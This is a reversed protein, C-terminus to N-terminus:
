EISKVGDDWSLIVSLINLIKIVLFIEVQKNTYKKLITDKEFAM